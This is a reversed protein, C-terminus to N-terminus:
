KVQIAQQTQYYSFRNIQGSIAMLRAIAVVYRYAASSRKTKVSALQNLSDVVDLSTSMGQAFSKKRMKINEVSLQETSALSNYENLAQNAERWTTEVLIELDQRTSAELYTVQLETSKAAAVTDARGDRSVLPISVGVGVLWNPETKATITDQEYVNYKGYFYVDPMYKAQEIKILQKAQDRKAVLMKLGPHVDLTQQILPPLEPTHTNIFLPSSTKAEKNKVLKSLILQTTALQSKANETEIRALDYASQASLVEVRAIQGQAELKKAHDYHEAMGKEIEIRTQTVQQAMVVGYYSQALAEFRAQTRIALLQEAENVQAARISQAADIRGGTFLPWLVQVSSTIINQDTLKTSYPNGTVNLLQNLADILDKQNTLPNLDRADVEVPKDLHTYNAGLNVQPFYLAKAAEKQLEAREVGVQEAAISEDTQLLRVWAQNFTLSNENASASNFSLLILAIPLYPKFFRQKLTM